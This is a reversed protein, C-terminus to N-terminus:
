PYKKRLLLSTLTDRQEYEQLTRLTTQLGFYRGPKNLNAFCYTCAHSCLNFGVELPIPSTLLEGWFPDITDGTRAQAGRQLGRPMFEKVAAFDDEVLNQNWQQM